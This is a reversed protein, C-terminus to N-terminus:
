GKKIVVIQDGVEDHPPENDSDIEYHIPDKEDSAM